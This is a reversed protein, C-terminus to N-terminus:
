GRLFWLLVGMRDVFIAQLLQWQGGSSIAAPRVQDDKARVPGSSLANVAESRAMMLAPQRSPLVQGSHWRPAIAFWRLLRMLALM